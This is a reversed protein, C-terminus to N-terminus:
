WHFALQMRNKPLEMLSFGFWLSLDHRRIVLDSLLSSFHDKWAIWAQRLDRNTRDKDYKILAQAAAHLSQRTFNTFHHREDNWTPSSIIDIVGVLDEPDQTLITGSLGITWSRYEIRDDKMSGLWRWPGKRHGEM